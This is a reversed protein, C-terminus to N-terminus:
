FRGWYPSRVFMGGEAVPPEATGYLPWYDNGFAWYAKPWYGAWYGVPLAGPTTGRTAFLVPMEEVTLPEAVQGRERRQYVIVAVVIMFLLALVIALASM